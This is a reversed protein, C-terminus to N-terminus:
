VKKELSGESTINQVYIYKYVPDQM